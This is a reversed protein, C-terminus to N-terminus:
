NGWGLSQESHWLGKGAQSILEGSMSWLNTLSILGRPCTVASIYGRTIISAIPEPYLETGSM